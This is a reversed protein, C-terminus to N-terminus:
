EIILNVLEGPNFLRIPLTHVGLGRSVIMTKGDEDFRGGDYKPFFAIRPSVVGGLLPLRVIGGHVHGALVLDAGWEKYTSFYDPNHAMLIKYGPETVPKLWKQMRDLELQQLIGRKYYRKHVKLGSLTVGYEELYISDNVLSVVGLDDLGQQLREGADGYREPYLFLRHEHNGYAYYVPYKKRLRKVFEL